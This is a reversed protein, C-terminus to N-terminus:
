SNIIQVNPNLGIITEILLQHQNELTRFDYQKYRNSQMTLVVSTELGSESKVTKIKAIQLIDVHKKLHQRFLFDLIWFLFLLIILAYFAIPIWLLLKGTQQISAVKEVLLNIFFLLFYIRLATNRNSTPVLRKQQILRENVMLKGDTTIFEMSSRKTRDFALKLSSLGM